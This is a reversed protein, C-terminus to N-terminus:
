RRRIREALISKQTTIRARVQVYDGIRPTDDFRTASNVDLRLGDLSWLESLNGHLRVKAGIPISSSRGAPDRAGNDVWQTILEIEDPTLPPGNLPMRPKALGNIRRILESAQANGPVVRARDTISLTQKLSMLQYGEPPPGMIGNERHCQMCRQAFIPAVNAYTIEDSTPPPTVPPTAEQGQPMGALIWSTFLNIETDALFPPGTLPMQPQVKGTTRQILASGQPNGAIVVPGSSSGKILSAYSDTALGKSAFPGSHCANCSRIFIPQLEVYTPPESIQQNTVGLSSIQQPTPNNVKASPEVGLGFILTVLACRMFKVSSTTM